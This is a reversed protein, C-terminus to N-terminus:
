PWGDTNDGGGALSLEFEDLLRVQNANPHAKSDFDDAPASETRADIEKM